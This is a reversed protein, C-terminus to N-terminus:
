ALKLQQLWQTLNRMFKKTNRFLSVTVNKSFVSKDPNADGYEYILNYLHRCFSKQNKPWKFNAPVNLARVLPPNWLLSLKGVLFLTKLRIRTPSTTCYYTERVDNAIYCVLLCFIKLNTEKKKFFWDFTLTNKRYHRHEYSVGAAVFITTHM